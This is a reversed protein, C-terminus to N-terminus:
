ESWDICVWCKKIEVKYGSAELWETIEDHLHLKVAYRCKTANNYDAVSDIEKIIKDKLRKIVDAHTQKRLASAKRLKAM